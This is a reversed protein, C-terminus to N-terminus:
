EEKHALRINHIGVWIYGGAVISSIGLSEIDTKTSDLKYRHLFYTAVFPISAAVVKYSWFKYQSFSAVNNTTSIFLPNVEYLGPDNLGRETSYSDLGLSAAASIGEAIYIATHLKSTTTSPLKFISPSITISFQAGIGSVCM